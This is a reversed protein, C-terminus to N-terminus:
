PSTNRARDELDRQIEERSANRRWIWDCIASCVFFVVFGVAYGWLGPMLMFAAFFGAAGILPGLTRLWLRM